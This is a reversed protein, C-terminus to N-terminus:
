QTRREGGGMRPAPNVRAFRPFYLTMDTGRQRTASCVIRKRGPRGGHRDAGVDSGQRPVGGLGAGTVLLLSGLIMWRAPRRMREM